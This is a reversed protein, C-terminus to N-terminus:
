FATINELLTFGNGDKVVVGDKEMLKLRRSVTSRHIGTKQSIDTITLSGYKSLVQVIDLTSTDSNDGIKVRYSYPAETNIDFDLTLQEMAGKVKFHRLITIINPMETKRIQWGTELFANLFQSGWLGERQTGDMGKKTHHAILFTTGLEDRMRKLPFMTEATKSMYDDTTTASYLPDIIVLKPKIRKMEREFEDMINKDQFRLKRETHFYIPLKPPLVVNDGIMNYRSNIITAVREALQGHFDEQQVIVVPGTDLVPFEGLFPKGGAISVALDLMLWTKYSGPPSVMFAITETPLWDNIAWKISTEGYKTMYQELGMIDFGFSTNESTNTKHDQTSEKTKQLAHTRYVSEVTRNLEEGTLPPENKSNWSILLTKTIDKPIGKSAYYGSLKACADNRGGHTVGRMLDSIWNDSPKSEVLDPFFRELKTQDFITRSETKIWKYEKGNEHISPPVVIYGHDGRIDVGRTVKNRIPENNLYPYDYILHYGGSGTQSILGTPLAARVQELSGGKWTDIDIAVVGSVSGTILGINADPYKTWWEKVETETAPAENFKAWSFGRIPKKDRPQLPIISYGSKIYLLAAELMKNSM